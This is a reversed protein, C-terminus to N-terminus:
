SKKTELRRERFDRRYIFGLKRVTKLATREQHTKTKITQM